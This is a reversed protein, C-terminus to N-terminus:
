SLAPPVQMVPVVEIDPQRDEPGGSEMTLDEDLPGVVEPPEVVSPRTGVAAAVRAYSIAELFVLQADGSEIRIQDLYTEAAATEELTARTLAEACAVAHEARQAAAEEDM